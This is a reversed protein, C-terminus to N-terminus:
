LDLETIPAFTCRCAVHLPIQNNAENITFIEGNMASCEQCTREGLSSVWRVNKVGKSAYNKLAGQSAFRTTETRAIMNPRLSKDTTKIFKGDKEKYTNPPKVSRKIENEIWKVSKGETFGVHMINRLKEIKVQKLKGLKIDQQTTAKLLKFQDSAIVDQIDEIYTQYNFGLWEQLSYEKFMDGENCIDCTCLETHIHEDDIAQRQEGPILPLSTTEEKDREKEDAIKQKEKDTLEKKDEVPEEVPEPEILLLQEYKDEDLGLLKVAEAELLTYFAKTTTPTKMLNSVRDLKENSAEEDPLGWELEVHADIGQVNLIRKFIQQEVVKEIEEQFSQIRMMFAKMQVKALGEPINGKGMLVEPIQTTYFYMNQQYDLISNFKDGVGVFELVKMDVNPGTAWEHKNNLWEMKKGFASLAAATPIIGKEKDGLKAHIPSNAKRKLLMSLQAENFVLSETTKLTPYLIGIGYPYDGVINFAIHAVENPKFHTVQKKDFRKFGGVYQNYEQVEGFEDRKIYMYTANLIKAKLIEEDGLEMFGSGKKLAEKTWQRLLTDFNIDKMWDELIIKAKQALKDEEAVKLYIGPGVIYDVYKDITATAMGFTMYLKDMMSFDFLHEEGLDEPTTKNVNRVEGKFQETFDVTGPFEIGFDSADSTNSTSSTFKGKITTFLDKIGM